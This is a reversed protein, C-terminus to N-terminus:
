VMDLDPSRQRRIADQQAHMEKAEARTISANIKEASLSILSDTEEWDYLAFSRNTAILKPVTVLLHGTSYYFRMQYTGQETKHRVSVSEGSSMQTIIWNMICAFVTKETHQKLPKRGDKLSTVGIM